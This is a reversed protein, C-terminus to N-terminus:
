VAKEIFDKTYSSEITIQEIKLDKDFEQGVMKSYIFLLPLLWVDIIRLSM